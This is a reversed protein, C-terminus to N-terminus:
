SLRTQLDATITAADAGYLYLAVLQGEPNILFVNSTHDMLYNETSGSADARKSFYLDYDTGLRTLTADDGTLGIFSPDFGDVYSAIAEPTDREGDISIFVFAVQDAKDALAKKIQKFTFLTTPCFDPCHTYGFFLLVTKGKLDSLSAPQGHQDTLTFDSLTHPPDIPEIPVFATGEIVAAGTDTSATKSPRNLLAFLIVAGGVVAVIITGLIVLRSSTTPPQKPLNDSM